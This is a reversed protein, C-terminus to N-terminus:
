SHIQFRNKVVNFLRIFFIEVVFFFFCLGLFYCRLSLRRTWFFGPSKSSGPFFDGFFM